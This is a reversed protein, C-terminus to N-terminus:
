GTEAVRPTDHPKSSGRLEERLKATAAFDVERREVNVVVGYVQRARELTVLQSVVDKLVLEPERELPDGWGGGGPSAVRVVDGKNLTVLFKSPKTHVKDGSIITIKTPASGQGGYLGYPPHRMRDTRMQVLTEDMLCHYTRVLGM